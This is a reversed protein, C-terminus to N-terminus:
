KFDEMVLAWWEKEQKYFYVFGAVIGQIVHWPLMVPYAICVGIVTMLVDRKM